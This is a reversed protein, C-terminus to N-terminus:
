EDGLVEVEVESGDRGSRINFISWREGEILETYKKICLMRWVECLRFTDSYVFLNNNM